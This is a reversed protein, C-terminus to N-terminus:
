GSVGAPLPSITAAGHDTIEATLLSDWQILHRPLSLAGDFGTDLVAEYRRVHENGDLIQMPVVLEWNGNINGYIM